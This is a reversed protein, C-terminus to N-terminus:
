QGAQWKLAAEGVAFYPGEVFDFPLTAGGQDAVVLALDNEALLVDFDGLGPRLGRGVDDGGFVKVALGIRRLPFARDALQDSANDIGDDAPAILAAVEGIGFRFGGEAVLEGM